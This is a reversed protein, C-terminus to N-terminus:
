NVLSNAGAAPSRRLFLVAVCWTLAGYLRWAPYYGMPILAATLSLVAFVSLWTWRIITSRTALRSAVWCWLLATLLVSPLLDWAEGIGPWVLRIPVMIISGAVFAPMNCIVALKYPWPWVHFRATSEWMTADNIFPQSLIRNREWFGIAGFVAAVVVGFSSLYWRLLSRDVM